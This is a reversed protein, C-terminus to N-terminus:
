VRVIGSGPTRLKLLWSKVMKGDIEEIPYTRARITKKAGISLESTTVLLGKEAGEHLVDTYLGKVTVKDIKKKQRKCQIIYEPSSSDTENWIRLDVGDDNSGPGLEVKYGFRTFCEGILEEFKRWHIDGLKQQNVSLFDIFRQDFFKSEGKKDYANFLDSINIIKSFHESKYFNHPNYKRQNEYENIQELLANIGDIGFQEKAARFMSRPDISKKGDRVFINKDDLMHEYYIETIKKSFKEGYEKKQRYRIAFIEKNGKIVTDTLGVKHILNYYLDEYVDSRIRLGYKESDVINDPYETGILLDCMEEISLAVGAKYGVLEHLHDAFSGEHFIISGM